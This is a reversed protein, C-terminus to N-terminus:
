IPAQAAEPHELVYGVAMRVPTDNAHERYELLLMGGAPPAAFRFDASASWYPPVIQGDHWGGGILTAEEGHENIVRLQGTAPVMMPIFQRNDVTLSLNVESSDASNSLHVITETLYGYSTPAPDGVDYALVGNVLDPAYTARVNPNLSFSWLIFALAAGILCLAVLGSNVIVQRGIGSQARAPTLAAENHALNMSRTSEKRQLRPARRRASM